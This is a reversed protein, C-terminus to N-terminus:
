MQTQLTKQAPSSILFKSVELNLASGYNIQRVLIVKFLSVICWECLVQIQRKLHWKCINAYLTIPVSALSAAAFLNITM